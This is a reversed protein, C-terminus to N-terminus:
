GDRRKFLAELSVNGRPVTFDGKPDRRYGRAEYLRAIGQAERRVHLCIVDYGASWVWEEAADLMLKSFGRGQFEPDIAFFRLDVANEIWSENDKTGPPFLAVTAVIRGDEEGVFVKAQARTAAADRLDAWRGDPVDIGRQAYRWGYARVRLAGTAADDAATAERILVLLIRPGSAASREPERTDRRRM